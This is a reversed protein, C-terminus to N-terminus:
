RKPDRMKFGLEGEIFDFLFQQAEVAHDAEFARERVFCGREDFDRVQLRNLIHSMETIFDERYGRLKEQSGCIDLHRESKLPGDGLKGHHRESKSPGVECESGEFTFPVM